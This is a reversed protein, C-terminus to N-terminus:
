VGEIDGKIYIGLYADGPVCSEFKFGYEDLLRLHEPNLAKTIEIRYNFVNNENDTYCMVNYTDTIEFIEALETLKTAIREPPELFKMKTLVRDRVESPMDYAGCLYYEKSGSAM